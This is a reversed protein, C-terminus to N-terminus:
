KGKPEAVKANHEARAICLELVHKQQKLYYDTGSKWENLAAVEEEEHGKFGSAMFVKAMVDECAKGVRKMPGLAAPALGAIRAFEKTDKRSNKGDPAFSGLAKLTEDLQDRTKTLQQVNTCEKLSPKFSAPEVYRAGNCVTCKFGGEGKCSPCDFKHEGSGEIKIQGGGHCPICPFFGAGMCGPCLVKDLPDPLVGLGGCARCPAKKKLQCEICKKNGELRACHPCDVLKAGNCNPCKEDNKWEVWQALGQADDKTAREFKDPSMYQVRGDKQAALPPGLLMLLLVAFWSFPRPLLSM